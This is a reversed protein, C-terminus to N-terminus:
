RQIVHRCSQLHGDCCFMRFMSYVRLCRTLRVAHCVCRSFITHLWVLTVLQGCCGWVLTNFWFDTYVTYTCVCIVICLGCLCAAAVALLWNLLDVSGTHHM